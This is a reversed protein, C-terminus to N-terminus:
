GPAGQRREHFHRDGHQAPGRGLSGEEVRAIRHAPQDQNQGPGNPHHALALAALVQHM